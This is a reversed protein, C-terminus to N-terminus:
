CFCVLTSKTPPNSSIEKKEEEESAINSTNQEQAVEINDKSEAKQESAM